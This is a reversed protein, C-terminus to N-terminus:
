EGSADAPLGTARDVGPLVIVFADPRITFRGGVGRAMSDILRLTFGLGLLPADPFPMDPDFGPDLLRADTVDALATPRSVAIMPQANVYAVDVTIAEGSAALGLCASILRASMRELAARAVHVVDVTEGPTLVLRLGRAEGVPSLQRCVGAVIDRAPLVSGDEVALHPRAAQDLDDVMELLSRGDRVIDIARARYPQAVPGLLQQGIMEAFGLIANLPTRLEHILQRLSDVPLATGAFRAVPGAVEDARPRRAAGHYGAFRGDRPNFIPSASILWIGSAPGSGAVSLRADRFPARRRFAGAAQGDVGFGGADAPDAVGMGILAERPAGDIWDITGDAATEFAFQDAPTDLSPLSAAGSHSQRFAEIRAVLDRIQTGPDASAAFDTGPLGFDSHGYSGLAVLVAAPLDRRNRLLLRSAAPMRPILARWDDVDLEASSLVLAAVPPEDTAFIAVGDPTTVRGSLQAAAHRRQELPVDARLAEIRAMVDVRVDDTLSGGAQVMLDVLQRWQAVKGAVDGTEIALVTAVMSDYRVFDGPGPCM